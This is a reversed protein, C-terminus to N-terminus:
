KKAKKVKKLIEKFYTHQFTYPHPVHIKPDIISVFEPNVLLQLALSSSVFCRVLKYASKDLVFNSNPRSFNIYKEYWKKGLSHNASNKLHKNLNTTQGIKAIKVKDCIKCKFELPEMNKKLNTKLDFFHLVPNFSKEIGGILVMKKPFKNKSSLELVEHISYVILNNSIEESSQNDNEDETTTKNPQIKIKSKSGASKKTKSALSTTHNIIQTESQTNLDKSNVTSPNKDVKSKNNRTKGTASSTNSRKADSSSLDM